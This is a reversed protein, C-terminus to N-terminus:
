WHLMSPISDVYPWLLFLLELVVHSQGLYMMVGFISSVGHTLESVWEWFDFQVRLTHRSGYSKFLAIMRFMVFDGCQFNLFM